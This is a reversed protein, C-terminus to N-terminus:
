AEPENYVKEEAFGAGSADAEVDRGAHPQQLFQRFFEHQIVLDM